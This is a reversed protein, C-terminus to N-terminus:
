SAAKVVEGVPESHPGAVENQADVPAAGLEKSGFLVKASGDKNLVIVVGGPAKQQAKSLANRAIEIVANKVETGTLEVIVATKM